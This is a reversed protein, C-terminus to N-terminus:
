IRSIDVLRSMPQGSLGESRLARASEISPRIAPEGPLWAEFFRRECEARSRGSVTGVMQWGRRELAWRRLSTAEFGVLVNLAVSVLASWVPVVGLADLAAASGITLVIYVLAILWLGHALMWFPGLISAAWSFGDRIFRLDEAREIRDAAPHAREHVTFVIM